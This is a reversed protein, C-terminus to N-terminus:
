TSALILRKWISSYWFHISKLSLRAFSKIWKLQTHVSNCISYVQIFETRLVLFKSLIKPFFYTFLKKQTHLGLFQGPYLRKQKPKFPTSWFKRSFLISFLWHLPEDTFLNLLSASLQERWKVDLAGFVEFNQYFKDKWMKFSWWFGLRKWFIISPFFCVFIFFSNIM